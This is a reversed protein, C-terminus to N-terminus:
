KAQGKLVEDASEFHIVVYNEDEYVMTGTQVVSLAAYEEKQEGTLLLFTKGQHYDERYYKMPSSWLFFSMDEFDAINAVEVAGNSLETMINANWYSAYGFTYGEAELFAVVKKEEANKDKDVFSYVCKMTALGLCGCLFLLVLWRDM